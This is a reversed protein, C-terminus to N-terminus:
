EVLRYADRIETSASHVDTRDTRLLDLALLVRLGEPVAPVAGFAVLFHSLLLASAVAWGVRASVFAQISSGRLSRATGASPTM